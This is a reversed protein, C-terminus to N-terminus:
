AETGTGPTGDDDLSEAPEEAPEESPLPWVAEDEEEEQVPDTSLEDLPPVDPPTETM